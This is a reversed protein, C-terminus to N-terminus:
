NLFGLRQAHATRLRHLRGHGQGGNYLNRPQNLTIESNRRSNSRPGHSQKRHQHRNFLNFVNNRSRVYSHSVNGVQQLCDNLGYPYKTGLELM